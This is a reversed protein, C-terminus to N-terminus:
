SAELQTRLASAIDAIANSCGGGLGGFNIFAHIMSGYQRLDVAVGADALAAAYHNGEDRLPDFGATVVVAPPLGSLDDALLPSIRPDTPELGSGGLYQRHFFDMDDRTLLFGSAFLTRSRTEANLETIPYNLLQLCPRPGGSDRALQSVVAALAGGASDGGVAVRGPDAGLEEAHESAWRFAAYADDVAAPAKHEPALRYDVSLVHVGAGHCIQRCFADFGDLDGFVFGGGHFYVLLAATGPRGPRYHRAGIPGAPGPISVDRVAVPPSAGGFAVCSDHTMTRTKTVDEDVALGTLGLAREGALFLQLAPDLTNGDVVVARRGSLLRKAGAPLVPAVKATLRSAARIVGPPPRRRVARVPGGPLSGTM